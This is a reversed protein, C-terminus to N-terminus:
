ASAALPLQSVVAVRRRHASPSSAGILRAAAGSATAGTVFATELKTM